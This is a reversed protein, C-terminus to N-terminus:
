SNKDGIEGNLVDEIDGEYVGTCKKGEDDEEYIGYCKEGNDDASAIPSLVVLAMMAVMVITKTKM